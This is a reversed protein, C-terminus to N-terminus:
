TSQREGLYAPAQISFLRCLRKDRLRSTLRKDLSELEEATTVVTPMQKVYRFNFLQHIKERAWPTASQTGLDDLILLPANKIDSFRRDYSVTSSPSFAARLHDLLDPLTIFLVPQGRDAQVNAIAAALHTKGSGYEGMLALWGRPMAAFERTLTVARKLNEQQDRPLDTRPLFTDFTLHRYLSLSNLDGDAGSASGQRYDPAVITYVRSLDQDSLRSRLRVEMDELAFNTTIVTPLQANYRYNLIQYLKEVAWATPSEIGLDDLILLPATRVEEFRSAFNEEDAREIGPKYSTRLHDLLDPATVFIVRNGEAIQHNAIAAALHTKGVGNGGRLVLWGEPQRAYSESASYVRELNDAVAEALGIGRPHFSDFTKDALFNLGSLQRLMTQRAQEIQPRRCRCDFIKGFDPHDDPVSYRVYGAGRCIPCMPDGSGYHRHSYAM